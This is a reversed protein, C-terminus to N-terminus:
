KLQNPLLAVEEALPLAAVPLPQGEEGEEPNIGRERVQKWTMEQIREVSVPILIVFLVADAHDM